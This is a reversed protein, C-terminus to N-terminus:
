LPSGHGGFKAGEGGGHERQEAMPLLGFKSLM